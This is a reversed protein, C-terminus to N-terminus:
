LLWNNCLILNVFCSGASFARIFVALAAKGANKHAKSEIETSELVKNV